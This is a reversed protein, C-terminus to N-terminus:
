AGGEGRPFVRPWPGGADVSLAVRAGTPVERRVFAELERGRAPEVRLYWGLGVFRSGAVRGAVSAPAGPPEEVRLTEPRVALWVPAGVAVASPAVGLWPVADHEALAVEVREGDVAVATGPLFSGRGVFRAVFETAPEAYLQRPTAVQELRGDHLVGVRDALEFAEEQEHTVLVTTIGIRELSARLHARTRERLSPDLNSLPEDLMLLRPEPALARALAVRQQQGGSIQSVRRGGLGELDVLTMMEAVRERIRAASWRASELGFAVNREVTLHPFLAYSQFVLGFGRRAPPLSQVERGEVLLRGRDPSEFGALIRLLTSKGSGSPGLLAFIGGRPVELSLDHLVGVEGFSKAVGEIRLFPEGTPDPTM